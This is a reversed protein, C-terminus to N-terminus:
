SQAQRLRDLESQKQKIEAELKEADRKRKDADLRASVQAWTERVGNVELAGDYDDFKGDPTYGHWRTPRYGNSRGGYWTLSGEAVTEGSAGDRIEVGLTDAHAATAAAVSAPMRALADELTEVYDVDDDTHSCCGCRYGNNTVTTIVYM